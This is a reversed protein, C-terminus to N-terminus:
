AHEAVRQGVCGRQHLQGRRFARPHLGADRLSRHGCQPRASLELEVGASRAGGVNAIYFQGPVEPNPLNLQLDSWDIFFVAANALLRDGAWSTKTGGEVHWTLEEDYAESGPPSAPNFGGAKFGRGTSVYAMRGPQFRYALAAQPSVKSFSREASVVTPPAVEPTYFTELSRRRAKTIWVRAM